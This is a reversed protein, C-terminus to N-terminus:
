AMPREGSIFFFSNGSFEFELCSYLSQDIFLFDVSGNRLANFSDMRSMQVQSINQGLSESLYTEFTPRMVDFIDNSTSTPVVGITYAASLVLSSCVIVLCIFGAILYHTM